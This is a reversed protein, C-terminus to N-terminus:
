TSDDEPTTRIKEEYQRLSAFVCVYLVKQYTVTGEYLGEQLIWVWVGKVRM